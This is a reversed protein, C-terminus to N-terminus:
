IFYSSSLIKLAFDKERLIYKKFYTSDLEIVIAREIHDTHDSTYVLYVVFTNILARM